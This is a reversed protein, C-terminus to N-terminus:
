RVRVRCEASSRTAEIEVVLGPTFPAQVGVVTVPPTPAPLGEDQQARVIGALLEDWKEPAWDVVYFTPRALDGIDGGAGRVGIIINRM